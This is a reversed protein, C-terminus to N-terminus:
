EHLSLFGYGLVETTTKVTIFANPDVERIYNKLRVFDRRDVVVVIVYKKEFSYAGYGEYITAGRDLDVTIFEKIQEFQKSIIRVEKFTRMGEIAYDIIIGNILVGFLSYLGIKIGFNYAALLTILFDCIQVGQGFDIGIYKNLLKGVIDTGGTSANQNFVIGIGVGSLVIGFILELMIDGTLSTPNPFIRELVWVFFSIAFSSYVTRAGFDRGLFLFALGFLVINIILMIPGVGIPVWDAIVVSLGTVGGAALNWPLFFFYMGCSVLVIGINILLFRKIRNNM